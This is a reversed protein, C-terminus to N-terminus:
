QLKHLRFFRNATAPTTTFTVSRSGGFVTVPNTVALWQNTSAPSTSSELNFGLATVPWSVVCASDQRAISLSATQLAPQSQVSVSLESTSNTADTATASVFQGPAISTNLEVSIPAVGDIGTTVSTSGLHRRGATTNTQNPTDSAYFDVTFVANPRSELNGRM